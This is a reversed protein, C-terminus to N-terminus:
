GGTAVYAFEERWDALPRDRGALEALLKHVPWTCTSRWRLAALGATHIALRNDTDAMVYGLIQWLEDRRVVRSTASSKFDILVGDAVADGDAGGLALSLTFIPNIVLQEASALSRHDELSARAVAILDSVTAPSASRDVFVEIDRDAEAITAQLVDLLAFPARFFQDLRALVISARCVRALAEASLPAGAPGQDRIAAVAARELAGAGLRRAAATATTNDIADGRLSARLVFGVATGVLGVDSGEPPLIPCVSAVCLQKNAAAVAARTNGLERDFWARVSSNSSRLHGTLSL